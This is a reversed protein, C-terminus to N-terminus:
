NQRDRSRLMKGAHYAFMATTIPNPVLVTFALGAGLIAFTSLTRGLNEDRSTTGASFNSTNQTM